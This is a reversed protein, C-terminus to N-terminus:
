FILLGRGHATQCRHSIHFRGNGGGERVATEKEGINLLVLDVVHAAFDQAQQGLSIFPLGNGPLPQNVVNGAQQGQFLAQGQQLPALQNRGNVVAIM